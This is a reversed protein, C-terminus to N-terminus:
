ADSSRSPMASAICAPTTSPRYRSSCISAPAPPSSPPSTSPTSFFAPSPSPAITSHSRAASSPPIPPSAASGSAIASPGRFRPPIRAQDWSTFGAGLQSPRRADRPLRMSVPVGTLRRASGGDAGTLKVDGGDYFAYYGSMPSLGAHARRLGKVYGSQVTVNSLRRGSRQRDLRTARSGPFPLPRLVVANVCASSPPAPASASASSSSPSPPSRPTAAFRASPTACIRSSRTSSRCGACIAIVTASRPWVASSCRRRRRADDPTM